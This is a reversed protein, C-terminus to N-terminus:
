AVQVPSDDLLEFRVTDRTFTCHVPNRQRLQLYELFMGVTAKGEKLPLEKHEDPPATSQRMTLTWIHHDFAVAVTAAAGEGYAELRDFLYGIPDDEVCVIITPEGPSCGHHVHARFEPNLLETVLRRTVAIRRRERTEV